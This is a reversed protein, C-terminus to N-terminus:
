CLTLVRMANRAHQADVLPALVASLTHYHFYAKMRDYIEPDILPKFDKQLGHTGFSDVIQFGVEEILANLEFYDWEQEEVGKGADYTHNKAAGADPRYNPTSVLVVTDQDCVSKINTLLDVVRHKGVHEVTEFCCVVNPHRDAVLDSLDLQPDTLDVRYVYADLGVPWANMRERIMDRTRLGTVGRQHFIDLGVYKTRVASFGNTHLTTALGVHSGCGFDIIYTDKKQAYQAVHEWRFIHAKWDRHLKGKDVEHHVNLETTDFGTADGLFELM